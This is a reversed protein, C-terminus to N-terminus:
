GLDIISEQDIEINGQQFIAQFTEDKLGEHEGHVEHYFLVFLFGQFPL